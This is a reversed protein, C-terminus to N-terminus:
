LRHAAAGPIFVNGWSAYIMSLYVSCKLSNLWTGRRGAYTNSAMCTRKTTAAVLLMSTTALTRAMSSTIAQSRTMAMATTAGNHSWVVVALLASSHASEQRASLTVTLGTATSAATAAMTQQRHTHSPLPPTLLNVTPHSAMPHTSQCQRQECQQQRPSSGTHLPATPPPAPLLALLPVLHSRCDIASTHFVFQLATLALKSPSLESLRM